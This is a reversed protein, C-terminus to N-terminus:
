EGEELSTKLPHDGTFRKSLWRDFRALNESQRAYADNIVRLRTHLALLREDPIPVDERNWDRRYTGEPDHTARRLTVMDRAEELPMGLARLDMLDRLLRLSYPSYLAKGSVTVMDPPLLGLEAYHMVTRRTVGAARALEATNYYATQTAPANM